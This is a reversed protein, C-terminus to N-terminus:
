FPVFLELRQSIQSYLRHAVWLSFLTSGLHLTSLWTGRRFGIMGIYLFIIVIILDIIM